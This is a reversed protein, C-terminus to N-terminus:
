DIPSSQNYLTVTLYMFSSCGESKTWFTWTQPQLGMNGNWLKVLLDISIKSWAGWKNKHFNWTQHYADYIHNDDLVLFHYKSEWKAVWSNSSSYMTTYAMFFKGYSFNNACFIHSQGLMWSLLYFIFWGKIYHTCYFFIPPPGLTSQLLKFDMPDNNMNIKPCVGEKM